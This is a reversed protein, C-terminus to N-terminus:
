AGALKNNSQVNNNACQHSRCNSEYDGHFGALGKVFSHPLRYEKLIMSFEILVPYHPFRQSEFVEHWFQVLQIFQILAVLPLVAFGRIFPHAQELLLGGRISCYSINLTFM